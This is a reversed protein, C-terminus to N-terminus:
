RTRTSEEPERKARNDKIRKSAHRHSLNLQSIRPSLLVGRFHSHGSASPRDMHGSGPWGIGFRYYQTNLQDYFKRRALTVIDSPVANVTNQQFSPNPAMNLEHPKCARTFFSVIVEIIGM